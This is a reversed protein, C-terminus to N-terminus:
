RHYTWPCNAQDQTSARVMFNANAASNRVIEGDATRYDCDDVGCYQPTKSKRRCTAEVYNIADVRCFKWSSTITASHTARQDDNMEGWNRSLWAIGHCQWGVKTNSPIADRNEASAMYSVTLVLFIM